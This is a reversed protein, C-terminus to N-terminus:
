GPGYVVASPAARPAVSPASHTHCASLCGIAYAPRWASAARGWASPGVSQTSSSSCAVCQLGRVQPTLAFPHQVGNIGNGNNVGVQASLVPLVQTRVAGQWTGQWLMRAATALM